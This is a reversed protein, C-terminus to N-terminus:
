YINNITLSLDMDGHKRHIKEKIAIGKNSMNGIIIAKLLILVNFTFLAHCM